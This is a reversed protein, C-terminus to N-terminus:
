NKVGKGTQMHGESMSLLNGMNKMFKKAHERSMGIRAVIRMQNSNMLRQFVDFVMGDENVTMQINDTFYIPTTDLNINLAIEQKPKNQDDVM